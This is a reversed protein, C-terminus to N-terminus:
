SRMCRRDVDRNSRVTLPPPTRYLRAKRNNAAMRHRTAARIARASSSWAASSAFFNCFGTASSILTGNWLLKSKPMPWLLSTDIDTGGNEIASGTAAAITMPGDHKPTDSDVIKGDFAAREGAGLMAGADWQVEFTNPKIVSREASDMGSTNPPDGSPSLARAYEPELALQVNWSFWTHWQALPVDVPNGFSRTCVGEVEVVQTRDVRDNAQGAGVPVWQPLVRNARKLIPRGVTKLFAKLATEVATVVAEIIIRAPALLADLFAAPIKFIQVVLNALDKGIVKAIEDRLLDVLRSPKLLLRIIKIAENLPKGLVEEKTDEVFKDLKAEIDGLDKDIHCGVAAGDGDLVKAPHFADNGIRRFPRQRDIAKPETSM